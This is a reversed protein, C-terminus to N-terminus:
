KEDKRDLFPMTGFIRDWLRCSVGFARDEQQYHHLAHHIWISKLIKPPKLHHICYHMLSYILYGITMASLFLFALERMVAYFILLLCGLIIAGPLPPMFVREEDNPFEHHIGHVIYKFRLISKDKHTIHFLYRHMMYEFLTWFVIGALFVFVQSFFPGPTNIQQSIYFLLIFISGYSVIHLVLNTKTFIELVSLNFLTAKEKNKLRNNQEM